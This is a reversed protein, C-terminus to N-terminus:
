GFAMKSVSAGFMGQMSRIIVTLWAAVAWSNYKLVPISTCQVDNEYIQTLSSQIIAIAVCVLLNHMCNSYSQDPAKDQRGRHITWSLPQCLHSWVTLANLIVRELLEGYVTFAVYYRM